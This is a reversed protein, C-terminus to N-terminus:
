LARFGNLRPLLAAKARLADGRAAALADTASVVDARAEAVRAVTDGAVEARIRETPPLHTAQLSFNSLDAGDRGLLVALQRRTTAAAGEAAALQADVDGARVSALLADSKTVLGQTVM